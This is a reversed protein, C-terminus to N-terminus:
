ASGARRERACASVIRSEFDAPLEREFVLSAAGAASAVAEIQRRFARCRRCMALHLRAGLRRMLPADALGGTSVLRAVDRCIMM